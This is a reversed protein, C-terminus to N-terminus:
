PEHHPVEFLRQMRSFGRLEFHGLEWMPEGLMEVFIESMILSRELDRCFREIRSTMNVDPGIVTFDLRDGSGINGYSVTGYHLAVGAQMMTQGARERGNRHEIDALAEQAAALAARCADAAREGEPPRFIALVGDGMIEMIEGGHSRVAPFVCDFYENLLRIVARPSMQDSLMTFDRLDVLMLAADITRIDGRRVQGDLILRMPEEGVYTTLMNNIFRRVAKLETVMSYAPLLGTLLALEDATFGGPRKTAWSLANIAGSTYTVPAIYYHTYGTERMEELIAFPLAHADDLHWDFSDGSDAVARVPSELYTATKEIGHDLFREDLEEGPQWIRSVGRYRAHLARLHLTARDIPIGLAVLRRCFGSFVASNGNMFRAERTLWDELSRMSDSGLRRPGPAYIPPAISATNM